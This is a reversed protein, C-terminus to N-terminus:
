RCAASSPVRRFVAAVSDTVECSCHIAHALLEIPYLVPRRLRPNHTRNGGRRGNLENRGSLGRFMDLSLRARRGSTQSNMRPHRYPSAHGWDCNALYDVAIIRPGFHLWRLPPSLFPRSACGPGQRRCGSRGPSSSRIAWGGNGAFHRWARGARNRSSWCDKGSRGCKQM